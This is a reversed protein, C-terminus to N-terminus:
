SRPRMPAFLTKWTAVTGRGIAVDTAGGDAWMLRITMNQDPATALAAALDSAVAGQEYTYVQGNIAFKIAVPTKEVGFRRYIPEAEPFAFARYYGGRSRLKPAGWFTQYGVVQTFFSRYTAQIGQPSWRSIVEFRGGPDFNRDFVVPGDFPDNVITSWEVNTTLNTVVPAVAHVVSNIGFTLGTTFLLTYSFSKIM